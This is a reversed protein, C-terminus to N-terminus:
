CPALPSSSPSVSNKTGLPRSEIGRGGGSGAMIQGSRNGRSSSLAETTRGAQETRFIPCHLPVLPQIHVQVARYSPAGSRQEENMSRGATVQVPAAQM